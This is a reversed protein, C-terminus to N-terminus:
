ARREPGADLPTSHRTSAAGRPEQGEDDPEPRAAITELKRRALTAQYSRPFEEILGKLAGVARLPQGLPDLYADCLENYLRCKEELSMGSKLTVLYEIERAWGSIDGQKKLREALLEIALADRPHKEIWKALAEDDMAELRAEGKTRIADQGHIRRRSELRKGTNWLMSGFKEGIFIRALLLLLCLVVLVIIVGTMGFRARIPDGVPSLQMMIMLVILLELLTM